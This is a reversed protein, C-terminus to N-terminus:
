DPHRLGINTAITSPTSELKRFEIWRSSVDAWIKQQEVFFRDLDGARLSDSPSSVLFHDMDDRLRNLRYQAEEMLVWRSRWNHFSELGTLVTVAAVMPLAIAARSPIAEIGLVVTSAATLVLTVLRVASARWRFKTKRSDTWAMDASVLDRFSVLQERLPLDANRGAMELYGKESPM